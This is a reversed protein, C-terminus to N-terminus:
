SERLLTALIRPAAATRHRHYRLVARSLGTRDQAEFRMGLMDLEEAVQDLAQAEARRYPALRDNLQAIARAHEDSGAAKALSLFFDAAATAVDGMKTEALSSHRDHLADFRLRAIALGLLRGNWGYLDRLQTETLVPVRFGNHRPAEVLREGVLRHLADRIPTISAALGAGIAAPEIPMGPKLLGEGLQRKLETYIREFTVGPSM